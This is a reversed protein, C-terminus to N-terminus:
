DVGTLCRGGYTMEQFALGGRAACLDAVAVARPGGDRVSNVPSSSTAGTGHASFVRGFHARRSLTPACGPRQHSRTRCLREFYYLHEEIPFFWTGCGRVSVLSM